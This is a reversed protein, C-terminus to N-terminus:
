HKSRVPRWVGQEQQTVWYWIRRRLPVFQDVAAMDERTPRRWSWGLIGSLPRIHWVRAREDAGVKYGVWGEFM